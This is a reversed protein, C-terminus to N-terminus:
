SSMHMGGDVSLIQGTIYSSANGLLFCIPNAVEEPESWRGMPIGALMRDRFKEGRIVETMPTEVVGFCISNSRIGYKAWERAASMTMGFLGSKASSYNIQGITGRSGAVSSINVISASSEEGKKNRDIILRGFVQLCNFCGTLNVDIVDQWQSVEMNEIMATRIIGANNVLGELSGFRTEAKKLTDEVFSRDTVSGQGTFVRDQDFKGAAASLTDENQDIMVLSGGLRYVLDCVALGIGQAAGTVVITSGELNMPNKM